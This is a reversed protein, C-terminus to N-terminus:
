KVLQEKLIEDIAVTIKSRTVPDSKLLNVQKELEGGFKQILQSALKHRVAKAIEARFEKDGVASRISELFINRLEASQEEICKQIIPEIPSHYGSLKESVSKGIGNKVAQVLEKGLDFSESM